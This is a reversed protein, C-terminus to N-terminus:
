GLITAVGAHPEDLTAQCFGSLEELEELRGIFQLESRLRVEAAEREGVVEWVAVPESKGKAEIPEAERFDFAHQAALYTQEGVLIGDTPAASQIRAATNLM